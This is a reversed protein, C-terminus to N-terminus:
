QLLNTTFPMPAILFSCRIIEMLFDSKRPQQTETAKNVTNGKEPYLTFLDGCGQIRGM